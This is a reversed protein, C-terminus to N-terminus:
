FKKNIIATYNVKLHNVGALMQMRKFENEM